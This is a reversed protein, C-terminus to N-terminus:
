AVPVNEAAATVAEGISSYIRNSGIRDTLGTGDLMTRFRRRPRALAFTINRGALGTRIEELADAGTSDMLNVGEADFVVLQPDGTESSTAARMRRKFYDANFFLIAGEFRYIVVGPIPTAGDSENIPHFGTKGAIQGLTADPPQSALALLRLISLGIAILVGPLVGLTIIGLLAVLAHRFEAHSIRYLRRFAGLDMLGIAASILVAALTTSPLFALPKTLFLLVLAMAGAAFVGAFQTKSGAADNIATRSDAGSIAFGQSLGATINAVGLAILDRNADIEYHNRAAFSRATLMASCFSILVIGVANLSLSAIDHGSVSPITPAPFGAPVAGIVAIGRGALDFFYVAAISIAVAVLPAPIRPVFRKMLRLLAFVSLGLIATALHTLQLHTVLYYVQRFFGGPQLPFGLLKGMQGIIISLAIGNLFGTLIPKSLFNAIFGIRALGAVISMLAVMLTLVVTLSTTRTPDGAALPIVAAALMACTASDPGVILQRSSGFFAYAVPPIISAYLGVVPPVGVLQAYAIGTPIAVAAVSLGGRLDSSLWAPQYNRAVRLGPIWEEIKALGFM